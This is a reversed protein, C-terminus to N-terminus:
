RERGVLLGTLDLPHERSTIQVPNSLDANAVFLVNKGEEDGVAFVVRRGDRSWTIGYEYYPLPLASLRAVTTGDISVRYLDYGTGTQELFRSYYVWQGDPSVYPYSDEERAFTLQTVEGSEIAIKYLDFHEFRDKGEPEYPHDGSSCFVVEKGDPTWAQATALDYGRFHTLRTQESGDRRMRYIEYNDEPHAQWDGDRTSVFTLWEGDPSWSPTSCDNAPHDTLNRPNGGDPDMRWIDSNGSRDSCFVIESGDPSWSPDGDYGDRHTLRRVESGDANMVYVQPSGSRTSVFVLQRGDPSWTPSHDDTRPEEALAGDSVPGVAISLLALLFLPRAMM